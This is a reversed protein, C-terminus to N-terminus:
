RRAPHPPMTNTSIKITGSEIGQSYHSHQKFATEIVLTRGDSGVRNFDAFDSAQVLRAPASITDIAADGGNTENITYHPRVGTFTSGFTLQYTDAGARGLLVDIGGNTILTDADSTGVLRDNGTTGTVIAM